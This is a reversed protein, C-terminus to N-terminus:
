AEALKVTELAVVAVFASEERSLLELWEALSLL